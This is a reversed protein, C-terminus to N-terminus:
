PALEISRRGVSRAILSCVSRKVEIRRLQVFQLKDFGAVTQNAPNPIGQNSLYVLARLRVRLRGIRKGSM